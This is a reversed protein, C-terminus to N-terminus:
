FPINRCLGSLIRVLISGTFLFVIIAIWSVLLSKQYNYNGKIFTSSIKYSIKSLIRDLPTWPSEYPTYGKHIALVIWRILTIIFLFGLLSQVVGWLMLIITQLIGGFYIRGTAQIGGLISSAVSLLGISLIPSFDINGFRLFGSKSFLGLYPECISSIIRGIKSERSGPIWSMIIYAFCCITYISLLAALISLLTQIM